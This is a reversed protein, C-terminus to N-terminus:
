GTTAVIVGTATTGAATNGVSLVQGPLFEGDVFTAVISVGHTSEWSVNGAVGVRFGVGFAGENPTWGAGDSVGVWIPAVGDAVNPRISM